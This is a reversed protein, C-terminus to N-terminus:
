SGNLLNILREPYNSVIGQIGAEVLHQMDAEEDVTWCILSLGADNLAALLADDVLGHWPSLFEAGLALAQQIIQYREDASFPRHGPTDILLGVPVDTLSRAFIEVATPRFSKIVAPLSTDRRSFIDLIPMEFGAEKVEVNMGVKGFCFEVFESFLVIPLVSRERCEAFSLADVAIGQIEADHFCIIAGDATCRLDTEILDVGAEVAAKFSRM